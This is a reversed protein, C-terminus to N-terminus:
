WWHAGWSIYVRNIEGSTNIVKILYEGAYMKYANAMNAEGKKLYFGNEENLEWSDFLGEGTKTIEVRVNKKSATNIFGPIYLDTGPASEVRFTAYSKTGTLVFENDYWAGYWGDGFHTAGLDVYLPEGDCATNSTCAWETVPKENDSCFEGMVLDFTETNVCFIERTKISAGCADLCESWMDSEWQYVGTQIPDEPDEPIDPIVPDVVNEGDLLSTPPKTEESCEASVEGAENKCYVDRIQEGDECGVECPRWPGVVWCYEGGGPYSKGPALNSCQQYPMKAIKTNKESIIWKYTKDMPTYAYINDVLSAHAASFGVILVVISISLIKKM